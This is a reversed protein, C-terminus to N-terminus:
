TRPRLVKLVGSFNLVPDGEAEVLGRVFMLSRGAKVVEGRGILRTGQSAAALFDGTLTVTVSNLGKLHDYALLFLSYDAFSLLAGGHVAGGANMLKPEALCGTIMRGDADRKAYFPGVFDEFPESGTWTSWGAWAGDAIPPGLDYTPSGADNM